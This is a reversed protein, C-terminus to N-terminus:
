RIRGRNWMCRFIQVSEAHISSRMTSFDTGSRRYVSIIVIAMVSVTCRAILTAMPCRRLRAQWEIQSRIKSFPRNIIGTILRGNTIHLAANKPFAAADVPLAHEVLRRAKEPKASELIAASFPSDMTGTDWIMDPQRSYRCRGDALPPLATGLIHRHVSFLRHFNSRCPAM